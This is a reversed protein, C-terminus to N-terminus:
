THFRRSSMLRKKTTTHTHTNHTHTHTSTHTRTHTHTHTHTHHANSPSPLKIQDWGSRPILPAAGMSCPLVNKRWTKQLGPLASLLIGNKKQKNNTQKKKFGASLKNLHLWPFLLIGYVEWRFVLRQEFKKWSVQPLLTSRRMLKKHLIFHAGRNKVLVENRRNSKKKRLKDTKRLSTYPM